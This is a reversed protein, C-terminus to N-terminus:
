IEQYMRSKEQHAKPSASEILVIKELRGSCHNWQRLVPTEFQGSQNKSILVVCFQVSAKLKEQLDITPTWSGSNYYLCSGYRRQDPSHFHGLIVYKLGPYRRTIKRLAPTVLDKRMVTPLVFPLIVAAISIISTVKLDALAGGVLPVSSLWMRFSSSISPLLVLFLLVLPFLSYKLIKLLLRMTEWYYRKKLIEWTLPLYKALTKISRIPYNKFIADLYATPPKINDLFPGILEVKNLLYRNILSGYPLTLEESGWIPQGVSTIKEYQHGHEIYIKSELVYARDCFEIRELVRAAEPDSSTYNLHRLILHKLKLRVKDWYFEVDHNGKIIVLRNGQDIFRALADFFRLHANGTFDMKWVSKYEHTKLGLDRERDSVRLEGIEMDIGAERLISQWHKYDDPSPTETLRIFDIFDGNIILKWPKEGRNRELYGLFGAFEDDYFFNETARYKGDEEYQGGSLHLDSVVVVQHTEEKVNIVEPYDKEAVAVM